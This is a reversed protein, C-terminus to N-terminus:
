VTEDYEHIGILTDIWQSNADATAVAAWVITGAPVRVSQCTIPMSDANTFDIKCVIDTYVGAAVAAAWSAHGLRNSAVRIRYIKGNNQVNIVHIRHLDFSKKGSRAPTETGDLVTIVTGFTNAIASSTLRFGTLSTELGPGVGAPSAGFWVENSHLHEEIINALEEIDTLL